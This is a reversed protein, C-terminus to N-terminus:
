NQLLVHVDQIFNPDIELKEKLPLLCLHSIESKIDFKRKFILDNINLPFTDYLSSVVNYKNLLKLILELDDFTYTLMYYNNQIILKKHIINMNIINIIKNIPIIDFLEELSERISTQIYTENDKKKGGFGSIIPTKKHPQYGCLVLNNDTFIMGASDFTM